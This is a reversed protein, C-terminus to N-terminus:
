IGDEKVHKMILDKAQQHLEKPGNVLLFRAKSIEMNPIKPLQDDSM